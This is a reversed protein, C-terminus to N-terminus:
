ESKVNKMKVIAGLVAVKVVARKRDVKAEDANATCRCFVVTVEESARDFPVAVDEIDAAAAEAELLAVDATASSGLAVFQKTM